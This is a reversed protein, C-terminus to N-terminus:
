VKKLSYESLYKKGQKKLTVDAWVEVLFIQERTKDRM